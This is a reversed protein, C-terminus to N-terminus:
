ASALLARLRASATRHVAAPALKGHVAPVEEINVSANEKFPDKATADLAAAATKGKNGKGRGGRRSRGPPKSDASPVHAAGDDVGTESTREGGCDTQELCPANRELSSASREAHHAPASAATSAARELTPPPAAPKLNVASGARELAPPEAMKGNLGSSLTHGTVDTSVALQSHAHSPQFALHQVGSRQVSESSKVNVVQQLDAGM